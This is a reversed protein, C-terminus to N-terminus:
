KDSVLGSLGYKKFSGVLDEKKAHYESLFARGKKTLQYKKRNEVRTERLIGRHAFFKIRADLTGSSMKCKDRLDNFSQPGDKEVVDLIEIGKLIIMFKGRDELTNIVEKKSLLEFNPEDFL